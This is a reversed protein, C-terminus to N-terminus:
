SLDKVANEEVNFIVRGYYNVFPRNKCKANMGDFETESGDKTMMIIKHVLLIFFSSSSMHFEQMIRKQLKLYVVFAVQFVHKATKNM